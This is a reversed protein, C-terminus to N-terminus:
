FYHTHVQAIMGLGRCAASRLVWDKDTAFKFVVELCQLFKEQGLRFSFLSKALPLYELMDNVINLGFLRISTSQHSAFAGSLVSSFLSQALPLAGERQTKFLMGILESVALHLADEAENDDALHQAEEDELDEAQRARENEQKRADSERLVSFIKAQM